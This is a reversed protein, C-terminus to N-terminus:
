DIDTAVPHQYTAHGLQDSDAIISPYRTTFLNCHTTSEHRILHFSLALTIINYFSSYIYIPLIGNGNHLNQVGVRIASVVTM